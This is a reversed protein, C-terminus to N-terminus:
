PGSNREPRRPCPRRRQRGPCRSNLGARWSTASLWPRAGSLETRPYYGPVLPEFVDQYLHLKIDSAQQLPDGTEGLWSAAEEENGVPSSIRSHRRRGPGAISLKKGWCARGGGSLAPSQCRRAAFLITSPRPQGILPDHIPRGVIGSSRRGIAEPPEQIEISHNSLGDRLM